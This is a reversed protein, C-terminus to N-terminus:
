YVLVVPRGGVVDNSLEHVRMIREPYARAEGDVVIGFVREAPDLYTAHDPDVFLPNDLARIGDKAVGGWQVAWVPIRAPVDAYLFSDLGRAISAYFEGKWQDFGAVPEFEPHDLLWKIWASQSEFGGGQDEGTLQLLADGIPESTSPEFSIRAIEVLPAVLGPHGLEAMQRIVDINPGKKVDFLRQMLAVAVRDNDTLPPRPTSTPITAALPSIFETDNTEEGPACAVAALAVIATM